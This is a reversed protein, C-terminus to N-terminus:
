EHGDLRDLTAGLEIVAQKLSVVSEELAHDAASSWARYLQREAAAFRDMIHAYATLGHSGVIVPRADVFATLQEEEIADVMATIMHVQDTESDASAVERLLDDARGRATVILARPDDVEPREDTETLLRSIKKKEERRLVLAGGLLGFVAILFLGKNDWRSLAFEKVRVREVGASQLREILSATLVVPVASTDPDVLPVAPDDVSRGAPGNLTVRDKQPDIDALRPVYATVSALTGVILSGSILLFALVKM